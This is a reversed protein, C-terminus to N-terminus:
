STSLAKVRLYPRVQGDFFGLLKHFPTNRGSPKRIAEVPINHEHLAYLMEMFHPFMEQHHMTAEYQSWEILIRELRDLVPSQQSDLIHQKRLWAFWQDWTM